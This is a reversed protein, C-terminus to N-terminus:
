RIYWIMATNIFNKWSVGRQVMEFWKAEEATDSM